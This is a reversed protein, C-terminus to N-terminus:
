NAPSTSCLPEEGMQCVQVKQAEEKSLSMAIQLQTQEDIDVAPPPQPQAPPIILFVLWLSVQM